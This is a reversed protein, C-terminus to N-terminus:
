MVLTNSYSTIYMVIQIRLVIFQSAPPLYEDPGLFPHGLVRELQGYLEAKSLGLLAIAATRGVGGVGKPVLGIVASRSQGSRRRAHNSDGTFGASAANGSPDCRL